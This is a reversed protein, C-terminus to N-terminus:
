VTIDGYGISVLWEDIARMYAQGCDYATVEEPKYDALRDFHSTFLTLFVDNEEQGTDMDKVPLVMHVGADIEGVSFMGRAQGLLFVDRNNLKIQTM